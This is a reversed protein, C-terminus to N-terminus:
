HNPQYGTVTFSDVRCHNQLRRTAQSHETIAASSHIRAAPVLNRGLPSLISCDTSEGFKTEADSELLHSETFGNKPCIFLRQSNQIEM